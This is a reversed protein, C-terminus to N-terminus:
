QGRGRLGFGTRGTSIGIQGRPIALSLVSEGRKVDVIVTQGATGTQTSEQLDLLSFVREGDYSVIEDGVQLGALSGASNEAVAAVPVATPRDTTELYLEYQDDGLEERIRQQSELITERPSIPTGGFRANIISQYMQTELSVVREAVEEDFGANLLKAVQEDANPLGFNSRNIRPAIIENLNQASQQTNQQVNSGLENMQGALDLRSDREEDLRLQLLKRQNVEQELKLELNEIRELLKDGNNHLAYSGREAPTFTKAAIAGILLAIILTVITKIM